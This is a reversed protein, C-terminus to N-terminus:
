NAFTVTSIIEELTNELDPSYYLFRYLTGSKYVYYVGATDGCIGADCYQSNPNLPVVRWTTGNIDKTINTQISPAIKDPSANDILFRFEKTGSSFRVSDKENIYDSPYAFTVKHNTDIYVKWNTTSSSLHPILTPTATVSLITTINPKANITNNKNIQKVSRIYYLCSLILSILLIGVILKKM